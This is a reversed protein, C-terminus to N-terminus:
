DVVQHPRHDRRLRQDRRLAEAFAIHLQRRRWRRERQNMIELETAACTTYIHDKPNYSPAGQRDGSNGGEGPVLVPESANGWLQFVNEGEPCVNTTHCPYGGLGSHYGSGGVGAQSEEFEGPVTKSAPIQHETEILTSHNGTKGNGSAAGAITPCSEVPTSVPCPTGSPVLRNVAWNKAPIPQTPFSQEISSVPVPKEEIGLGPGGTQPAGTTAELDYAYGNKTAQAVDTVKKGGVETEIMAVSSSMDYDWIDHHTTQFGWAINGTLAHRALFSDTWLNAGNRDQGYYDGAFQGGANSAAYIIDGTEPDVAPANWVAAGGTAWSYNCFVCSTNTPWTEHGYEGPGPINYKKWVIAGTEANLAEMFGRVSREAGTAGIYVMGDYVLPAANVGFGETAYGVEAYWVLKGTKMELAEVSANLTGVYILGNWLAVGRTDQGCCVGYSSAILEGLHVWLIKGSKVSVAFVDGVGTEYYLVGNYEGSPSEEGSGSGDLQIMWNPKLNKVNSSNIESLTTYRDLSNGGGAEIWNGAPWADLEENTYKPAAPIESANEVAKLGGKETSATPWLGPHELEKEAKLLAANAVEEAGPVEHLVEVETTVTVPESVIVTHKVHEVHVETKICAKGKKKTGPPCKEAKKKHKAKATSASKAASTAVTLTSGLLTASLLVALGTMMAAILKRKIRM